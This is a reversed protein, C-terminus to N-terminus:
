QVGYRATWETELMEMWSPHPEPLATGLEAPTLTAIGLDIADFAAKQDDSLKDMDLVTGYGLNLPDLGHAQAEPSLIFNAVVM